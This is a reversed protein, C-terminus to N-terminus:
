CTALDSNCIRWYPGVMMQSEMRMVRKLEVAVCLMQEGFSVQAANGTVGFQVPTMIFIQVSIIFHMCAKSMSSLAFWDFKDYRETM